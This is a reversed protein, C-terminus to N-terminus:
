YGLENLINEVTEKNSSDVNLYIITNNIRSVVKYRSDSSVIYKSSNELDVNTEEDSDTKATQFVYKNSNYFSKAYDDDSLEYFEIKCSYDENAAINVKVINEYDAFQSTSDMVIYGKEEMFSKFEDATVTSQKKANNNIFIVVGVLAVILIVAIVIAIIVSKKM